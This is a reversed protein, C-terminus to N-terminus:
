AADDPVEGRTWGLEPPDCLRLGHPFDPLEEQVPPPVAVRGVDFALQEHNERPVERLHRPKNHYGKEM